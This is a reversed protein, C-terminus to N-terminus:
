NARSQPRQVAMEEYSYSYYYYYFVAVTISIAQIEPTSYPYFSIIFEFTSQLGFVVTM